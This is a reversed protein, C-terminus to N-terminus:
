NKFIIIESTKKYLNKILEEYKLKASAFLGQATHACLELQFIREKLETNEKLLKDIKLQYENTRGFPTIFLAVALAVIAIILIIELIDNM